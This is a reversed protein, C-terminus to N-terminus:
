CKADLDIFAPMDDIWVDIWIGQECMFQKKSKRGTAFIGKVKGNLDHAVENIEWPRTSRLTVCYVNHGRKHMIEIFEDWAVPDLTYTEDYDLAINM